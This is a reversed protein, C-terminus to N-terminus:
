VAAKVQPGYDYLALALLCIADAEDEDTGVYGYKAQAAAVMADKKANGKGTAHKKIETSSYGRYEIGQAECWLKLVGQLESQVVIAGAHGGAARAAEYVVLNVGTAGLERLKADFRILRMGKSEDRKPTLDWVGSARFDGSYAWGCHTAVDLALIKLVKM